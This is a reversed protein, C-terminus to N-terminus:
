QTIIGDTMLQKLCNDFDSEIMKARKTVKATNAMANRSWESYREKDAKNKQKAWLLPETKQDATVVQKYVAPSVPAARRLEEKSLFWQFFEGANSITYDKSMAVEIAILYNALTSKNIDEYTLTSEATTSSFSDRVVDVQERHRKQVYSQASNFKYMNDLKARNLSGKDNVEALRYLWQALFEDCTRRENIALKAMDGTFSNGGGGAAPKWVNVLRNTMKRIHNAVPGAYANRKEQDNLAMGENLRIFLTPLNKDEELEWLQILIETDLIEYQLDESLESFLVDEFQVGQSAPEGEEPYSVPFEDNLFERLTHSRNNGDISVYINGVEMANKYRQKMSLGSARLDALAIPCGMFNDIVSRIFSQKEELGWRTTHVQFSPDLYTRPFYNDVFSKVTVTHIRHKAKKLKSGSPIASFNLTKQASNGTTTTSM